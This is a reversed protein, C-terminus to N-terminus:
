WGFFPYLYEIRKKDTKILGFFTSSIYSESPWTGKKKRNKEREIKRKKEKRENRKKWKKEKM